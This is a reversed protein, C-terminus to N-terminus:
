LEDTGGRGSLAKADGHRYNAWPDDHWGGTLRYFPREDWKGRNVQKCGRIAEPNGDSVDRFVHYSPTQIGAEDAEKLLAEFREQWELPMAELALRPIVLYPTRYLRSGFVDSM